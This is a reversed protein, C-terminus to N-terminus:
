DRLDKKAVNKANVSVWAGDFDGFGVDPLFGDFKGGGVVIVAEEFGVDDADKGVEFEIEGGGVREDIDFQFLLGGPQGFVMLGFEFLEGVEAGAVDFVRGVV